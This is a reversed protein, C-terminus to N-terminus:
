IYLSMQVKLRSWIAGDTGRLDAMDARRGADGVKAPMLTDISIQASYESMLERFVTLLTTKGNNGKPGWFVFVCKESV